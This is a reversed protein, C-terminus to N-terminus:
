GGAQQTVRFQLGSSRNQVLVTVSVETRTVAGWSQEQFLEATYAFDLKELQRRDLPRFLRSQWQPDTPAPASFPLVVEEVTTSINDQAYTVLRKALLSRGAVTPSIGAGRHARHSVYLVLLLGLGTFLLFFAMQRANRRRVSAVGATSGVAKAQESWGSASLYKWSYLLFMLFAIPLVILWLMRVLSSAHPNILGTLGSIVVLWPPIWRYDRWGPRHRARYDRRRAERRLAENLRVEARELEDQNNQEDV